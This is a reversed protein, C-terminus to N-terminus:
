SLEPGTQIASVRQGDSHTLARNKRKKFSNKKKQVFHGTREIQAQEQTEQEAPASHLRNPTTESRRKIKNRCSKLESAKQLENKEQNNNKKTLETWPEQSLNKRFLIENQVKSLKNISSHNCFTIRSYSQQRSITEGIKNQNTSYNRAKGRKHSQKSVMEIVYRHFFYIFLLDRKSKHFCGSIRIKIRESHLDWGRYRLIQM